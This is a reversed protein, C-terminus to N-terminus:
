KERYYKCFCKSTYHKPQHVADCYYNFAENKVISFHYQLHLCNKCARNGRQSARRCIRGSTSTGSSGKM